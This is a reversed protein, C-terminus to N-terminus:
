EDPTLIAMRDLGCLDREVTVTYGLSEGLARIDAGQAAGIEFLFPANPKLLHRYHTLFYRYFTLGDAGGALAMRPEHTIEPQPDSLDADTLYPPNSIIMDYRNERCVGGEKLLDTELFAVRDSVGNVQANERALALAGPSLDFAHATTDARHALTSIAICGSGTCFDAFHAGRPLHAIAYDVLLETEQRPILCAPSVRYQEGYFHTDDLIYGLPEREETRRRIADELAPDDCDALPEALAFAPRMHSFRCFLAMAEGAANEIGAARLRDEIQRRTM